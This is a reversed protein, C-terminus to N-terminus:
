HRFVTYKIHTINSVRMQFLFSQIASHPSSAKSSAKSRDYSVVLHIFSYQSPSFCHCGVGLFKGLIYRALAMGTAQSPETEQWFWGLAQISIFLHIYRSRLKFHINIRSVFIGISFSEM